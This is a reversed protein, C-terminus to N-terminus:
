VSVAVLPPSCQPGCLPSEFLLSSFPPPSSLSMLMISFLIWFQTLDSSFQLPTKLCSPLPASVPPKTAANLSEMEAHTMWVNSTSQLVCFSAHVLPFGESGGVFIAAM